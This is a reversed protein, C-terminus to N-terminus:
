DANGARCTTRIKRRKVKRRRFGSVKIERHLRPTLITMHATASIKCAAEALKPKKKAMRKRRLGDM